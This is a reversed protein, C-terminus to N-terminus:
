SENGSSESCAPANGAMLSLKCRVQMLLKGLMNEGKGRKGGIGWFSDSSDEILIADGTDKLRQLLEPHQTFKAVLLRKMLNVKIEHWDERVDFHSLAHGAAACFRPKPAARLWAAVTSDKPKQCQYAHELSSYVTGQFEIDYVSSTASV